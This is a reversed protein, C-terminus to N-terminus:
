QARDGVTPGDAVLVERRPMLELDDIQELM